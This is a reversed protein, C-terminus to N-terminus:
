ATEKLVRDALDAAWDDFSEYLDRWDPGRVADSGAVYDRADIINRLAERLTDNHVQLTELEDWDANEVAADAYGVANDLYYLAKEFAGDVNALHTRATAVQFPELAKCLSAVEERKRHLEMLVRSLAEAREIVEKKTAM